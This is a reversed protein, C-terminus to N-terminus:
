RLLADIAAQAIAEDVESAAGSAAIAGITEGDVKIPLGGQNPFSDPFALVELNGAKLRDAAAKSPQRFIAAQRAKKQAFQVTNLGARDAKQLFLLNGSEDVICITVQVNRKQAEQEAAAAMIKIAALNLYKKTPLDAASALVVATLLLAAFKLM